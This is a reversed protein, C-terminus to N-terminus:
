KTFQVPEENEERAEVSGIHFATEGMAKLRLLVEDTDEESVVMVLGLGNNFTRMMERSSFEGVKQMYQFIPPPTWTSPNIIVKCTKPLIRPLNEILGGGTIHSVGYIRFDRRMNRITRSYIRTPEMLEEGLTRGFEDVWDDVSMKLQEFFLKRVLSFGNSHLGSSGVGIVQYGVAIESGDFLEDTDALGVVFGAVDYEGDGYFGPMEATEGGILSCNAEKCGAAIGKVIDAVKPVDLKGMAIYDLMFLPTAGQVIIDNVCMAVLDIGITDHKDLMFAIKLKTGVGDTSAVLVPNKKDQFHLSFLGAFSGIDTIVGPKFTKNVIPKIVEILKNGADIDVGAELYKNNEKKQAM